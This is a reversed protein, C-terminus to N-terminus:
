KNIQKNKLNRFESRSDKSAKVMTHIITRNVQGHQNLYSVVTIMIDGTMANQPFCLCFKIM